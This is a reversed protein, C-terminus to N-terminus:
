KQQWRVALSVANGSASLESGTQRRPRFVSTAQSGTTPRRVEDYEWTLEAGLSSIARDLTARVPLQRADYEVRMSDARHWPPRQTVEELSGDDRYHYQYSLRTGRLVAPQTLPASTDLVGYNVTYTRILRHESDFLHIVLSPMDYFADSPTGGQISLPLLTRRLSM